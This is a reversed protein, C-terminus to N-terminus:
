ETGRGEGEEGSRAGPAGAGETGKGVASSRRRGCPEARGIAWTSYPCLKMLRPALSRTPAPLPPLLSCPLARRGRGEGRCSRRSLLSVAATRGEGATLEPHSGEEQTPTRSCPCPRALMSLLSFHRRAAAKGVESRPTSPARARQCCALLERREPAQRLLL